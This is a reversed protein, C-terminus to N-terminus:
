WSPIPRVISDARVDAMSLLSVELVEIDLCITDFHPNQTICHDHDLIRGSIVPIEQCCVCEAASNLTQVACRGCECWDVNQMREQEAPENESSASSDNDSGTDSQSLQLGALVPEFAYGEPLNTGLQEQDPAEPDSYGSETGTDVQDDSDM